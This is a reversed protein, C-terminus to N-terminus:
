EGGGLVEASVLKGGHFALKLNDYEEDYDECYAASNIGDPEAKTYRYEITLKPKLAELEARLRVIVDELVEYNQYLTRSDKRKELEARLRANEAELQTVKNWAADM